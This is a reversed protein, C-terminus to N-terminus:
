LRALDPTGTGAWVQDFQGALEAVAADDGRAQHVQMLGYLAWANNPASDLATTFAQEAADLEGMELLVAGLSQHVPYYWYPPEMYPLGDQIEVARDFADIARPHEGRAM